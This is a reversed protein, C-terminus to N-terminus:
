ISRRGAVASPVDSRPRGAPRYCLWILRNRGNSANATTMAAAIHHLRGLEVPLRSIDDDFIHGAQPEQAMRKMVMVDLM